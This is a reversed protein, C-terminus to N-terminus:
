KEDEKKKIKSVFVVGFACLLFMVGFAIVTNVGDNSKFVSGVIVVTFIIQGINILIRGVEKEATEKSIKM